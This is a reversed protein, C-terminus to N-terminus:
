PLCTQNITYGYSNNAYQTCESVCSKTMPDSFYMVSSLMPCTSVCKM